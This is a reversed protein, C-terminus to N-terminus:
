AVRVLMEGVQAVIFRSMSEAEVEFPNNDYGVTRMYEKDLEAYRKVGLAENQSAHIMEHVLSVSSEEPGNNPTVWIAHSIIELEKNVEAGYAGGLRSLIEEESLDAISSDQQPSSKGSSISKSLGPPLDISVVLSVQKTLALMEYVQEFKVADVAIEIEEGDILVKSTNM